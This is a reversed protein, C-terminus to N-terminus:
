STANQQADITIKKKNNKKKKKKEKSLSTKKESHSVQNEQPM